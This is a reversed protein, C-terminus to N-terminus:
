ETPIAFGIKYLIWILPDMVRYPTPKAINGDEDPNSGLASIAFMRVCDDDYAGSASGWFRGADWKAESITKLGDHITEIEELNFKNTQIFSSNAKLNVKPISYGQSSHQLASIVADIKSYTLALPRNKLRENGNIQTLSSFIKSPDAQVFNDASEKVMGGEVMTKRLGELTFPDILFIVGASDKLYAAVDNIRESDQFIEGATDYFVLFISKNDKERAGRFSLRFIMPAARKAQTQKPLSLDDFMQSSMKTYVASTKTKEDHSLDLPNVEYIGLKYGYKRLQQILALFYVTKGSSRDGIISITASDGEIMQTPIPNHCEPCVLRTTEQHCIPCKAARVKNSLLSFVRSSFIHKSPVGEELWHNNLIPDIESPCKESGNFMEKNTCQYLARDAPFSKSCYPCLIKKAM